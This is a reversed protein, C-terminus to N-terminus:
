STLHAAVGLIRSFCAYETSQVRYEMSLLTLPMKQIQVILVSYTVVAHMRRLDMGGSQGEETKNIFCKRKRFPSFLVM